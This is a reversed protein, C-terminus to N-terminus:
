ENFVNKSQIIAGMLASVRDTNRDRNYAILEELLGKDALLDLNREETCANIVLLLILARYIIKIKKM